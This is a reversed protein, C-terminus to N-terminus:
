ATLWYVARRFVTKPWHHEYRTFLRLCRRRICEKTGERPHLVDDVELRREIEDRTDLRVLGNETLRHTADMLGFLREWGDMLRLNEDAEPGAWCSGDRRQPIHNYDHKQHVVTVVPTVDIVPVRLCRARCILWNDWGPRGVAFPPMGWPIGRPFVFMDSGIPPQRQGETAVRELLKREWGGNDDFAISESLDLNMRASVLLFRRFPIRQVAKILDGTLIIDANVYCLVPFRAHREVESFASPLLPTGLSTTAIGGFHRAGLVSAMHSVGEDDGLLIVDSDPQIRRWSAVANEQQVGTTGRFPKPISFITLM